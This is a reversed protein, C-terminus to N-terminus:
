AEEAPADIESSSKNMRENARNAATEENSNDGESNPENGDSPQKEITGRDELAEEWSQKLPTAACQEKLAKTKPTLAAGEKTESEGTELYQDFNIAKHAEDMTAMAQKTKDKIETSVGKEDTDIETLARQTQPKVDQLMQAIYTRLQKDREDLEAKLRSDRENLCQVFRSEPHIIGMSTEMSAKVQAMIGNVVQSLETKGISGTVTSITIEENVKLHEPLKGNDLGYQGMPMQPRPPMPLASAGMIPHPVMTKWNEIMQPTPPEYIGGVIIPLIERKVENSQYINLHVNIMTSQQLKRNGKYWSHMDEKFHGEKFYALSRDHRSRTSVLVYEDKSKRYMM